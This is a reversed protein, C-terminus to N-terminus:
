GQAIVTLAGWCIFYVIFAAALFRLWGSIRHAARAQSALLVLAVLGALAALPLTLKIPTVGVAGAWALLLSTLLALGAQSSRSILM